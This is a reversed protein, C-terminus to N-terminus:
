SPQNTLYITRCPHFRSIAITLLYSFTRSITESIKFADNSSRSSVIQEIWNGFSDYLYEYRVDSQSAPESRSINGEEETVSANGIHGSSTTHEEAKDGHDNYTTRTTQELSSTQHQITTIRGQTDYQYHSSRSYLGKPGGLLSALDNQLEAASAGPDALIQARIEAPIMLEPNEVIQKEETVRGNADYSGIIRLALQGEEDYIRAETPQDRDNYITTVSSGSPMGAGVEVNSFPSGGASAVLHRSEQVKPDFHQIRIKRGQEDYQFTSRGSDGGNDALSLLRGANDYAYIKETPPSNSSAWTEKLLRGQADYTRTTVSVSGDPNTYRRSLLRGDPDYETTTSFSPDPPGTLPLRIRGKRM